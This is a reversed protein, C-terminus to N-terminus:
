PSLETDYIYIPIDGTDFYGDLYIGIGIRGLYRFREIEIGDTRTTTSRRVM